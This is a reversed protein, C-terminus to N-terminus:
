EAGLHLQREALAMLRDGLGGVADVLEVLLLALRGDDVDDAVRGFADVRGLADLADLPDLAAHLARLAPSAKNMRRGSAPPPLRSPPQSRARRAVGLRVGAAEERGEGALPPPIPFRASLTSSGATMRTSPRM